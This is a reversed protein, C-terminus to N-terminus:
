PQTNVPTSAASASPLAHERPDAMRGSATSRKAAHQRSLRPLMPGLPRGRARCPASDRGACAMRGMAPRAGVGRASPEARAVPGRRSGRTRCSATDRGIVRWGAANGPDPVARRTEPRMGNGRRRDLARTWAAHQRSQGPSSCSPSQLPDRRPASTTTQLGRDGLSRALEVWPQLRVPMSPPPRVSPYAGQPIERRGGIRGM